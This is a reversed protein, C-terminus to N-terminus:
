YHDTPGRPVRACPSTDEGGGDGDTKSYLTFIGSRAVPVFTPGPAGEGFPTVPGAVLVDDYYAGDTRYRYQCPDYIWFSAHKPPAVDARYHVPWHPLETFSWGAVDGGTARTYSGVFVYPWFYTRPSRRQFDLMAVRGHPKTHALIADFDDGLTDHQIARMETAAEGAMAVAAVAALAIPAAGRWGAAPRLGLVALAVVIPALRVDLYGAAGVHFPTTFYMIAAVAFPVLADLTKKMAAPEAKRLLGLAVVITFALWWAGAFIEDLHSRWVDFCWLPMAHLARDFPLRGVAEAPGHEVLSGRRWWAAGAALSPVLPLGLALARRLSRTRVLDIASWALATGVFVVFASVHAFFVALGLAAVIVGRRRSPEARHRVFAAIAFFAIPVSAFYPLFGIVLPRTWVLMPGFLALREDRGLARLLSRLAFPYLIAAVALLLKNATIADGVVRAVLAGALPYALYQSQGLAVEYPAGGGGPLLRALTAIAAVHEPLDTFPAYRVSFLPAAVALSTVALAITPLRVKM